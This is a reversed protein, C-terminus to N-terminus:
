SGPGEARRSLASPALYETAELLPEPIKGTSHVVAAARPSEPTATTTAAAKQVNSQPGTPSSRDVGSVMAQNHQPPM